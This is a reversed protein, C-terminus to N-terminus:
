IKIKTITRNPVSIGADDAYKFTGNEIDSYIKELTSVDYKKPNLNVLKEIYEKTSKDKLKKGGNVMEVFKDYVRKDDKIIAVIFKDSVEPSTRAINRVLAIREEATFHKSIVEIFEKTSVGGTKKAANAIEEAVKKAEQTTKAKGLAAYETAIKKKIQDANLNQVGSVLANALIGGITRPKTKPAPQESILKVGMIERVRNIEELIRKEM